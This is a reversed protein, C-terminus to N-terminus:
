TRAKWYMFGCRLYGTKRLEHVVRRAAPLTLNFRASVAEVDIYEGKNAPDDLWARIVGARSNPDKPVGMLQM